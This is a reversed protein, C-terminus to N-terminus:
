PLRSRARDSTPDAGGAGCGCPTRARDRRPRFARGSCRPASDGTTAHRHRRRHDLPPSVLLRRRSVRDRRARGHGIPARRGRRRAHSRSSTGIRPGARARRRAPRRPVPATRPSGGTGACGAGGAAGGAGSTGSRVRRSSEDSSDRRRIPLPPVAAPRDARPRRRALPPPAPSENSSEDGAHRSSEDSSDDIRAPASPAPAAAQLEAVQARVAALEDGLAAAHERLRDGDARARVIEAEAEALRARADALESEVDALAALQKQLRERDSRADALESEVTALQILEDEAHKHAAESATRPCARGVPARDGGPRARGADNRSGESGRAAASTYEELLGDHDHLTGRLSDLEHVVRDHEDSFRKIEAAIEERAARSARSKAQAARKDESSRLRDLERRLAAAEEQAQLRASSEHQLRQHEESLVRRAEEASRLNRRAADELEALRQRAAHRGIEGTPPVAVPEVTLKVSEIPVVEDSPQERRALLEDLLMRSGGTRGAPTARAAAAPWDSDSGRMGVTIDAVFRPSTSQRTRETQSPPPGPDLGPAARLAAVAKAASARASVLDDHVALLDQHATRLAATDATMDVAPQLTAAAAISAGATPAVGLKGDAAALSQNMAATDADAVPSVGTYKALKTSIAGLRARVEALHDAAEIVHSQPVRLWYVRFDTFIKAADAHFAEATTYCTSQIQGDLAAIASSANQLTSTQPGNLGFPDKRTGLKAVLDAITAEHRQAEAHVRPKVADRACKTAPAAKAPVAGAPVAIGVVSASVLTMAAVFTSLNM